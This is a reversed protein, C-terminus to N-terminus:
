IDGQVDDFAKDLAQEVSTIRALCIKYAEISQEVTAMLGDIDLVDSQEITQANTKLTQYAEAFTMQTTM